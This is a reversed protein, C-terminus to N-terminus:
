KQDLDYDFDFDAITRLGFKFMVTNQAENIQYSDETSQYSALLSFCEDLYGIGFSRSILTSNEVDYGLSGYATWNETLKLSANTTIQSRDAPFGYIEQAGIFSYVAGISGRSDAYTGALDTRRVELTAEDIRGQVGLELGIPTGVALSGVYDSRDTELGSDFGVLALDVQSYPNEGAIRYSQGIMADVSYGTAYTGAYRLGINARSGGEIRDYGSFKDKDFLNTTDFVLGQADENPLRGAKMEDPRLLLQGIPEIIHSATATEILLPYRAELGATAMGRFGSDDIAIGGLDVDGLRGVLPDAPFRVDGIEMAARYIDGRLGFSPTVLVGAETTITRRWEADVTGRAYDGELVSRDFYDDRYPRTRGGLVEAAGSCQGDVIFQPECLLLSDPRTADRSINAVNVDVEIEGGAVDDEIREYDLSPLIDPQVEQDFASRSQIDFRQARLDFFSREGLGTLYVESTHFAENFNEIEYTNSFNQDSQALIDWGFTWRDSLDFRGTTGIMGRDVNLFDPSISRREGTVPDTQLPEADAFADTDRQSIGAAQLTFFGNSTAQRYEIEGLFGQRTYYTGAVTIDKDDALAFFYPVRLGFGLEESSKLSPVLFGSQRKVTPDPAQFYPLYAIPQGFLEFKAGYYRVVKEKQDWVIKRAKVQWLPAREPNKSCPECATYIGREFTTVNANERVAGAAAFRTNEPTEIRLATVFGDAFDDTIDVSDAYIRNGDPQQLEVDGSAVLRRSKQDYVVKRAVLKYGGYDIQVGGAATVVGTDSDYVVTDSELFLQADSPVNVAAGLDGLAEQAIAASGASVLACFAVSALLARHRDKRDMRRSNGRATM